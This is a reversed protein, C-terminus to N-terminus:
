IPSNALHIRGDEQLFELLGSLKNDKYQKAKINFLICLFLVGKKRKQGIYKYYKYISYYFIVCYYISFQCYNSILLHRFGMGSGRVAAVGYGGM